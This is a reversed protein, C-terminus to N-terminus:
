NDLILNILNIIDLTNINGDLNLDASGIYNGNYLILEVLLIVDFINFLNDVNLDGAQNLEFYGIDPMIGNFDIDPIDIIIEDDLILYNTGNDVCPSNAYLNFDNNEYDIFLPDSSFLVNEISEEYLRINSHLANINLLSNNPLSTFESTGNNWLISNVMTVNSNDIMGFSLTGNNNALTSNTIIININHETYEQATIM